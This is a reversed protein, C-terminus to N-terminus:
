GFAKPFATTIAKEAGKKLGGGVVVATGYVADSFGKSLHSVSATVPHAGEMKEEFAVLGMKEVAAEAQTNFAKQAASAEAVRTNWRSKTANYGNKVAQTAAKATKTLVNAM